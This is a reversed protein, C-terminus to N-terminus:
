RGARGSRRRRAARAARCRGRATAAPAATVPPPEVRGHTYIATTTVRAHGLWQSVIPLPVALDTQTWSAFRHRLRHLAGGSGAAAWLPRLLYDVGEPTRIPELLPVHEKPRLARLAELLRPTLIPVERSQMTKPGRKPGLVPVRIWGLARDDAKLTVHEGRPLVLEGRRLGADAALLVAALVRPDASLPPRAAAAVLAEVLKEPAVDRVGEGRRRRPSQVECPRRRLDESRVAQDM